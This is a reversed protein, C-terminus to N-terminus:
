SNASCDGEPLPVSSDPLTKMPSSGAPPPFSQSADVPGMSREPLKTEASASALGFWPYWTESVTWASPDIPESTLCLTKQTVSHSVWSAAPEAEPTGDPAPSVLLALAAAVPGPELEWPAAVPCGKPGTPAAAAALGAPNRASAAGARGM